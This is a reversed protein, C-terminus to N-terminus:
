PIQLTQGATLSYPSSLSNVAAIAVPDVDGYSCAITYISDGAGVTYTAPHSKLARPGSTWTASPLRLTAGTLPKSDMTLGNAQLMSDVNVDYRRAICIPWEGKKLTYTSPRTTTPAIIPIPTPEATPEEAAATETPVGGGAQSDKTPSTDVGKQGAAVATQTQIEPIANPQGTVVPFPFDALTPTAAPAKSAPMLCGTLVLMFTLLVPLALLNRKTM